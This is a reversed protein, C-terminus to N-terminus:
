TGANEAPNVTVGILKDKTNGYVVCHLVVRFLGHREDFLAQRLARTYRRDVADATDLAKLSRTM